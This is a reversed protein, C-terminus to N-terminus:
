AQCWKSKDRSCICLCFSWELIQTLLEGISALFDQEIDSKCCDEAASFVENLSVDDTPIPTACNAEDDLLCVRVTTCM